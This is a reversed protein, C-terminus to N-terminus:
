LDEQKEQRRRQKEQLDRTHEQTGRMEQNETPGHTASGQPARTAPGPRGARGLPGWLNLVLSETSMGTRKAREWAVSVHLRQLDSGHPFWDKRVHDDGYLKGLHENVYPQDPGAYAGIDRLEKSLLKTANRTERSKKSKRTTQPPWSHCPRGAPGPGPCGLSRGGVPGCFVLFLLSVM